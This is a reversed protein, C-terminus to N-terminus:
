PLDPMSERASQNRSRPLASYCDEALRRAIARFTFRIKATNLLIEPSGATRGFQHNFHQYEIHQGGSLRVRVQHESRPRFSM